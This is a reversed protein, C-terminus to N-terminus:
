NVERASDATRHTIVMIYHQLVDIQTEDEGREPPVLPLPLEANIHLGEERLRCPFEDMGYRSHADANAVICVGCPALMQQVGFTLLYIFSFAARVRIVKAILPAHQVEHIVDAAIICSFKEHPPLDPIINWDLPMTFAQGLGDRILLQSAKLFEDFSQLHGGNLFARPSGSSQLMDANLGISSQCQSLAVQHIDTLLVRCGCLAAAMGAVGLGCGLELVRGGGSGFYRKDCTTTDSIHTCHSIALLSDMHRAMWRALLVSATWVRTAIGGTQLLLRRSFKKVSLDAFGATEAHGHTCVQALDKKQGSSACSQTNIALQESLDTLVQLVVGGDGYIGHTFEAVVM